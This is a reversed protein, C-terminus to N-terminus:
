LSSTIRYILVDLPWNTHNISLRDTNEVKAFEKAQTGTLRNVTETTLETALHCPTDEGQVNNDTM